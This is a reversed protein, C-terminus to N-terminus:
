TMPLDGCTASIATALNLPGENSIEVFRQYKERMPPSIARWGQWAELLEDYDRSQAIIDELESLGLCDNENRCYQGSSYM